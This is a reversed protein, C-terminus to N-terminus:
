PSQKLPKAINIPNKSIRALLIFNKKALFIVNFDRSHGVYEWIVLIVLIGGLVM